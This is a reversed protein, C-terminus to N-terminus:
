QKLIFQVSQLARKQIMLYIAICFIKRVSVPNDSDMDERNYIQGLDTINNAIQIADQSPLDSPNPRSEVIEVNNYHFSAQIAAQQLLVSGISLTPTVL